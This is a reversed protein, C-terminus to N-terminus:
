TGARFRVGRSVSDSLTTYQYVICKEGAFKPWCLAVNRCVASISTGWIGVLSV